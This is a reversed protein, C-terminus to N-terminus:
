ETKIKVIMTEDLTEVGIKISAICRNGNIETEFFTLAIGIAKKHYALAPETNIKKINFGYFTDLRGQVLTKVNNYDVNKPEAKEIMKDILPPSICVTRNENPASECDLALAADIINEVEKCNAADLAELVLQDIRRAVSVCLIKKVEEKELEDTPSIGFMESVAYKKLGVPVRTVTDFLHSHKTIEELPNNM